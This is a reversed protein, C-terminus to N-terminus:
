LSHDLPARVLRIQQVGDDVQIAGDPVFANKVYFAQARRYTEQWSRVIVRAM